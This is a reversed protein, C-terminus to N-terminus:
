RNENRFGGTIAWLAANHAASGQEAPRVAALIALFDM